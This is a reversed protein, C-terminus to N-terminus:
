IQGLDALKGGCFDRKKKIPSPREEPFKLERARQILSMEDRGQLTVNVGSDTKHQACEVALSDQPRNAAQHKRIEGGTLRGAHLKVPVHQGRVAAHGPDTEQLCELGLSVSPLCDANDHHMDGALMGGPERAEVFLGAVPQDLM